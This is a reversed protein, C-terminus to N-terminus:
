TPPPPPPTPGPPAPPPPPPPAASAQGPIPDWRRAQEDWQMWASAQPDWQIYTGRAEDWQPATTPVPAAPAAPSPPPPAAATGPPPPAPPATVGGVLVPRGAASARVVFTKAVMDGVRRHGNTTLATIFGVLALFPLGDVLWLVWRVFARGIGPRGGDERVTRIGTVLKGVTWGTLGQLLVHLLVTPGIWGVFTWGGPAGELAQDDVWPICLEEELTDMYFDCYETIGSFGAAQIDERSRYEMDATFAAVAIVAILLGDILAAVVRRGVVDTPDAVTSM